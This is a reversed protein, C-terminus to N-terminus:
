KLLLDQRDVGEKEVLWAWNTSSASLRGYGVLLLYYFIAPLLM